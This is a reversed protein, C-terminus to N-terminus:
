RWRRASKRSPIVTVPDIIMGSEYKKVTEVEAAQQEISLNRHIIGIGGIQALSIATRSETVTDMPSSVLPIHLRIKPTLLPFMANRRCCTPRSLCCCFTMLTLGERLEQHAM